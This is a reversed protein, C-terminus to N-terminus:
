KEKRVETQIEKIEKQLRRIEEKAVPPMEEKNPYRDEIKWVREQMYDIKDKAIFLDLRTNLSKITQEIEQNLQAVSQKVEKVKEDRAYTNNIYLFASGILGALTCFCVVISTWSTTKAAAVTSSDDSITKVDIEIHEPEKDAHVARHDHMPEAIEIRDKGM